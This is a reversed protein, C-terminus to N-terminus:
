PLRGTWVAEAGSEGVRVTQVTAGVAAVVALVAAVVILARRGGGDDRGRLVHAGALLMTAAFLLAVVLTMTEGLEEHTEILPSPGLVGALQEGTEATIPTLVLAAAALVVVPWLLRRRAAPWLACLVLGLSVLPVLVVVGHVLLPHAPLGSILTM